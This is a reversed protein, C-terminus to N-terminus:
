LFSLIIAVNATVELNQLVKLSVVEKLLAATSPTYYNNAKVFRNIDNELDGVKRHISVTNALLQEETYTDFFLSYHAQKFVALDKYFREIETNQGFLPTLALAFLLSFLYRM